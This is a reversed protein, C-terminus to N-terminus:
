ATEGAGAASVLFSGAYWVAGAVLLREFEDAGTLDFSDEEWVATPYEEDKWVSPPNLHGVSVALREFVGCHRDDLFLLVAVERNFDFLGGGGKRLREAPLASEVV